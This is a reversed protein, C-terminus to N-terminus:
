VLYAPSIFYIPVVISITRVREYWVKAAEVDKAMGIGVEAYYGM